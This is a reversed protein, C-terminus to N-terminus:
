STPFVYVSSVVETAAHTQLMHKNKLINFPTNHRLRTMRIQRIRSGATRRRRILGGRCGTTQVTIRGHKSIQAVFVNFKPSFGETIIFQLLYTDLVSATYEEDSGDPVLLQGEVVISIALFISSSSILQLILFLLHKHLYSSFFKVDNLQKKLVRKEWFLWM